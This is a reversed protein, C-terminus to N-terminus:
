LGLRAMNSSDAVNLMMERFEQASLQQINDKIRDLNTM